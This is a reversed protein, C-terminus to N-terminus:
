LYMRLPRYQFVDLNDVILSNNDIVKDLQDDVPVSHIRQFFQGQIEKYLGYMKM